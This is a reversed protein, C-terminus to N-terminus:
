ILHHKDIYLLLSGGTQAALTHHHHERLHQHHGSQTFMQHVPGAEGGRKASTSCIYMEIHIFIYYYYINLYIIIFLSSAWNHRFM